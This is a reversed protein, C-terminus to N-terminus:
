RTPEPVHEAVPVTGTRGDVVEIRDRRRVLQRPRPQTLDYIAPRSGNRYGLVDRFGRTTVLVVRATGGTLLANTAVTTGHFIMLISDPRVGADALARLAREFALSPDAPISPVKALRVDGDANKAIADTFTGGIDIGVVWRRETVSVAQRVSGSWRPWKGPSRGCPGASCTGRSAPSIYAPLLCLTAERRGATSTSRQPWRQRPEWSSPTGSRPRM